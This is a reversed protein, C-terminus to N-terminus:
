PTRASLRQLVHPIRPPSLLWGLLIGFSNAAMDTYSFTRYGTWEQAFELAIGLCVLLMATLWRGSSTCYVQGFWAMVTAYALMHGVKDGSELDITPPSPILSVVIIAAVGFWGLMLWARQLTM